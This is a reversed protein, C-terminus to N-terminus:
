IRMFYNGGLYTGGYARIAADSEEVAIGVTANFMIGKSSRPMSWVRVVSMMREWIYAGVPTSRLDSRVYISHMITIWTKTSGLMPRLMFYAFGAPVDEYLAYLGGYYGENEKVRHAMREYVEQDFPLDSFYSERHAQRVLPLILSVDSLEKGSQIKVKDLKAKEDNSAIM